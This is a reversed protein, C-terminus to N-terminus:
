IGSKKDHKPDPKSDDKLAGSSELKVRLATQYDKLERETPFGKGTVPCIWEESEFIPVILLRKKIGDGPFHGRVKIADRRRMKVKGKGPIVYEDGDIKERYEEQSDNVLWVYKYVGQVTAEM